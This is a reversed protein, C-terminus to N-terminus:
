AVCEIHRPRQILDRFHCLQASVLAMAHNFHNTDRIKAPAAYDCPLRRRYQLYYVGTTQLLVSATLAVSPLDLSSLGSEFPSANRSAPPPCNRDPCRKRRRASVEVEITGDRLCLVAHVNCVPTARLLEPSSTDLCHLSLRRQIRM